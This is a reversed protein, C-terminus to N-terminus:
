LHCLSLSSEVSLCELGHDELTHVCTYMFWSYVGYWLVCLHVGYVLTVGCISCMDYIGCKVYVLVVYVYCMVHWLTGRMYLIFCVFCVYLGCTYM